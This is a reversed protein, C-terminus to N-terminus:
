SSSCRLGATTLEKDAILCQNKNNLSMKTRMPLVVFELKSSLKEIATVARKLLDTSIRVEQELEPDMVYACFYLHTTEEVGQVHKKIEDELSGQEDRLLNLGSVVQLKDSSPWQAV